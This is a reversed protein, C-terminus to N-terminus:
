CTARIILAYTAVVYPWRQKHKPTEVYVKVQGCYVHRVVHGFMSVYMSLWVSSTGEHSSVHLLHPGPGARARNLMLSVPFLISRIPQMPQAM